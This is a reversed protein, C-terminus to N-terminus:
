EKFKIEDSMSALEKEYYKVRGDLTELLVSYNHQATHLLGILQAKSMGQLTSDSYMENRGLVCKRRSQILAMSNVEIQKELAKIAVSVAEKENGVLIDVSLLRELIKKAEKEDM